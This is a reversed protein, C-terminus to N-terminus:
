SINISSIKIIKMKQINGLTQASTYPEFKSLAFFSVYCYILTNFNKKLEKIKNKEMGYNFLLKIFYSM